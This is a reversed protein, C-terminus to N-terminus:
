NDSAKRVEEKHIKGDVLHVIRDGMEGISPEHTILMITHGDKHLDKLLDLIVKGNAQDLNGTPEDAMIINPENVLARAVAVRQQEGGSLHSPVHDLRHGLGVRELVKVADVEDQIKGHFFYQSLMVNELATLYPVLHFQQFIFGMNERRFRTLENAKLKTIDVDNMLVNGGTPRDLCGLINLLTTKGSGSAGMVTVWEGEKIDLTLHDLARTRADYDMVLDRASIIQKHGKM